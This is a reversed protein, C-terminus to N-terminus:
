GACLLDGCSDCRQQTGDPAHLRRIRKRVVASQCRSEKELLLVKAGRNMQQLSMATAFGVIGGGVVCFDFMM